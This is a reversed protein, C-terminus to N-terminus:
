EEWSQNCKRTRVQHVATAMKEKEETETETMTMAEQSENRNGCAKEPTVSTSQKEKQNTGDFDMTEQMLLENIKLLENFAEM